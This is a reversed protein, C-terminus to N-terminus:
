RRVRQCNFTDYVSWQVFDHFSSWYPVQTVNAHKYKSNHSTEQALWDTLWNVVWDIVLKNWAYIAWLVVMCLCASVFFFVLYMIISFFILYVKVQKNVQVVCSVTITRRCSSWIRALDKVVHRGRLWDCTIFLPPLSTPCCTPPTRPRSAWVCTRDSTATTTTCSMVSSGTVGRASVSQSRGCWSSRTPPACRARSTERLVSIQWCVIVM